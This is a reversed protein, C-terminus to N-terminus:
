LRMIPSERVHLQPAPIYVPDFFAEDIAAYYLM